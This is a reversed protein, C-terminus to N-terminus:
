WIEPDTINFRIKSILNESVILFKLKIRTCPTVFRLVGINKNLSTIVIFRFNTYASRIEGV